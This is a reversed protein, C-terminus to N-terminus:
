SCAKDSWSVFCEKSKKLIFEKQLDTSMKLSWSQEPGPVSFQRTKYVKKFEALTTMLVDEIEINKFFWRWKKSEPSAVTDSLLIIKKTPTIGRKALREITQVIDPDMIRLKTKPNKLILYDSTSLNISGPIHYSTYDFASRTDVLVSNNAFVNVNEEMLKTPNVQCGFDLLIFLLSLIKKTM